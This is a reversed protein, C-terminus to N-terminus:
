DDSWLSDEELNLGLEVGLDLGRSSAITPNLSGAELLLLSAFCDKLVYRYVRELGDLGLHTLRHAIVELRAPLKSAVKAVGLPTRYVKM